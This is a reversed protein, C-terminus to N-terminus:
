PNSLESREFNPTLVMPASSAHGKRRAFSRMMKSPSSRRNHTSSILRRTVYTWDCGGCSQWEWWFGWECVMTKVDLAADLLAGGVDNDFVEAIEEDGAEFGEVLGEVADGVVAEDWV